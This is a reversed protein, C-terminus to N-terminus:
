LLVLQELRNEDSELAQYAATTEIPLGLIQPNCEDNQSTGQSQEIKEMRKGLDSLKQMCLAM